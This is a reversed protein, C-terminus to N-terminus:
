KTAAKKTKAAAKHIAAWRKKTAAIIARRGAASLRREAKGPKAKARKVAAWRKRQAAAIRRRAAASMTRKRPKASGAGDLVAKSLGAGGRDLAARIAAIAEEIKTKEAQYGILAMELVSDDIRARKPM